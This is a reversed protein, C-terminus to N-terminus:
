KRGWDPYNTNFWPREEQKVWSSDIGNENSLHVHQMATTTPALYDVNSYYSSYNQHHTHHHHPSPYCNTSSGTVTNSNQNLYGSSAVTTGVSTRHHHPEICSDIVAPSWITANSAASYATPVPPTASLIPPKIYGSSAAAAAAAAPSSASSNTSANSNNSNCSTNHHQINNQITTPTVNSISNKSLSNVQQGVAAAAVSISSSNNSGASSSKTKSSTQSSSARASSKETGNHHQQQKVQQRCKARRNKFWVQVRSEPLNIKIAVEERMFIDPYRTKSFLTELVDLQARTFTTRERRQKRPNGMPPYGISNHLSDMLGIGNVYPGSKLYPSMGSPTTGCGGSSFAPFGLEGEPNCGSALANSWMFRETASYTM